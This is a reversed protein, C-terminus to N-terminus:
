LLGLMSVIGIGFLPTRQGVRMRAMLQDPEAVTLLAETVEVEGKSACIHLPTAGTPEEVGDLLGADVSVAWEAVHAHGYTCAFHAINMGAVSESIDAGFEDVLLQISELNGHQAAFLLPPLGEAEDIAVQQAWASDGGIVLCDRLCWRNGDKGIAGRNEEDLSCCPPIAEDLASGYNDSNITAFIRVMDVRNHLLALHFINLGIRNRRVLAERVYPPHDDCKPVPDIGLLARVNTLDNDLVALQLYLFEMDSALDEGSDPDKMAQNTPGTPPDPIPPHIDGQGGLGLNFHELNCTAHNWYPPLYIVEGKAVTCERVGHPLEDLGDHYNCGLREGLPSHDSHPIEANPEAVYFKKQGHVVGLWNESHSHFGTGAGKGGLSLVHNLWVTRFPLSAKTFPTRFVQTEGGETVHTQEPAAM